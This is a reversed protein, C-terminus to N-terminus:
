DGVEETDENEVSMRVIQLEVRCRDKGDSQHKSVSTVEAFARIDVLDGVDCNTDLGLKELEDETLTLSLGYPYDAVNSIPATCMMDVAEEVKEAPTRKMDTMASWAM